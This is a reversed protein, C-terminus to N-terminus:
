MTSFPAQVVSAARRRGLVLVADILTDLDETRTRHNVIACRLVTDVGIRTTSLVARGSEQIDAALEANQRDSDFSFRYRFCVINLTTPAM